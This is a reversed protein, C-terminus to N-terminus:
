RKRKDHHIFYYIVVLFLFLLFSFLVFLLFLYLYLGFFFLFCQKGERIAVRRGNSRDEKIKEETDFDYQKTEISSSTKLRNIGIRVGILFKESAHAQIKM